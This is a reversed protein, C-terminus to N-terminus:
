VGVRKNARAVTCLPDDLSFLKGRPAVGIPNTSGM